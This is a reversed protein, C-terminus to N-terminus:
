LSDFLIRFLLSALCVCTLLLHVVILEIVPSMVKNMASRIETLFELIRIFHEAFHTTNFSVLLTCQTPSLYNSNGEQDIMFVIEITVRSIM